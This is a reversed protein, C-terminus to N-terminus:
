QFILPELNKIENIDYYYKKGKWTYEIRVGLLPLNNTKGLPLPDITLEGDPNIKLLPNSTKRVLTDIIMKDGIGERKYVVPTKSIKESKLQNPIGNIWIKTPKVTQGKKTELYIYYDIFEKVPRKVVAGDESDSKQINGPLSQRQYAYAKIVPGKNQANVTLGAIIILTILLTKKMMSFEYNM